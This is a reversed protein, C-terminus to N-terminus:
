NIHACHPTRMQIIMKKITEVSAKQHLLIDNFFVCLAQNKHKVFINVYKHDNYIM